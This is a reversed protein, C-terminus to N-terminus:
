PRRAALRLTIPMPMGPPPPQLQLGNLVEDRIASDLSPDGTSGTMQARAVRGSSDPWVKVTVNLRAARTKRNRQM